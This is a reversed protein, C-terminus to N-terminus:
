IRRRDFKRCKGAQANESTANIRERVTRKVIGSCDLILVLGDWDETEFPNESSRQVLKMLAM